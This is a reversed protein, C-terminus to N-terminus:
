IGAGVDHDVALAAINDGLLVGILAHLRGAEGLEYRRVDHESRQLVSAYLEIVGDRDALVGPACAARAGEDLYAALHRDDVEDFAHDHLRSVVGRYSESFPHAARPLSENLEHIFI